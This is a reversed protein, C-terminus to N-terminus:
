RSSDPNPESFGALEVDRDRMSIAPTVRAASVGFSLFFAPFGPSIESEVSTIGQSGLAVHPATIWASSPAPSPASQPRNGM